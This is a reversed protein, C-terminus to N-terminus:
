KVTEAQGGSAQQKPNKCGRIYLSKQKAHESLKDANQMSSLKDSKAKAHQSLTDPKGPGHNAMELQHKVLPTQQLGPWSNHINIIQVM